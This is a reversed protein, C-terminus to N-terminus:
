IAPAAPGPLPHGARGSGMPSIAHRARTAHRAPRPAALLAGYAGRAAIEALQAPQRAIERGVAPPDRRREHRERERGGRHQREPDPETVQDIAGEPGAPRAGQVM